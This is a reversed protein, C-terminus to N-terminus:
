GLTNNPDRYDSFCFSFFGYAVMDAFRDVAPDDTLRRRNNGDVDILYIDDNGEWEASFVILQDNAVWAPSGDKAPHHTLRRVNTGNANM